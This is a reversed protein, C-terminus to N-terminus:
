PLMVGGGKGRLSNEIFFQGSPVINWFEFGKNKEVKSPPLM